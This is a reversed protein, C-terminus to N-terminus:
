LEQQPVTKSWNNNAGFTSKSQRLGIIVMWDWGVRGMRGMWLAEKMMQVPRPNIQTSRWHGRIVVLSYKHSCIVVFSQWRSGIVVSPQWHNGIVILFYFCLCCLSLTCSHVFVFLSFYSCITLYTTKACYQQTFVIRHSDMILDDM